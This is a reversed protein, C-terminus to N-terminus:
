IRSTLASATDAVVDETIETGDKLENVQYLVEFGGQLDLGLKINNLVGTVTPSITGAFIVILLLFAVIRGRTKM